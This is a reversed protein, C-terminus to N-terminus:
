KQYFNQTTRSKADNGTPLLLPYETEINKLTEFIKIFLQNREEEIELLPLPRFKRNSNTM